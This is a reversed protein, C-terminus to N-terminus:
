YYLYYYFSKHLVPIFGSNGCFRGHIRQPCIPSAKGLGKSMIGRERIKGGMLGM